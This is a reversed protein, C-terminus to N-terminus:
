YDSSSENDDMLIQNPAEERSIMSSSIQLSGRVSGYKSDPSSSTSSTDHSPIQRHPSSEILLSRSDAAPVKNPQNNNNVFQRGLKPTTPSFKARSHLKWDARGRIAFSAFVTNATAVTFIITFFTFLGQSLYGLSRWLASCHQSTFWLQIAIDLTGALTILLCCLTFILLGIRYRRRSLSVVTSSIFFALIVLPSLISMSLIMYPVESGADCDFDCCTVFFTIINICSFLVNITIILTWVAGYKLSSDVREYFELFRQM